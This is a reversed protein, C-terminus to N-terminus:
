MICILLETEELHFTTSITSLDRVFLSKVEKEKQFNIFLHYFLKYSFPARPNTFGLHQLTFVTSM